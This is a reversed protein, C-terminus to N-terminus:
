KPAGGFGGLQEDFRQGLQQMCGAVAKAGLQSLRAPSTAGDSLPSPELHQLLQSMVSTGQM